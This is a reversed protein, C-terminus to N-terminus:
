VNSVALERTVLSYRASAGIFDFVVAWGRAFPDGQGSRLAQAESEARDAIAQVADRDLVTFVEVLNLDPM